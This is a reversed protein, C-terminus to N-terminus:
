ASGQCRPVANAGPGKGMTDGLNSMTYTPESVKGYIACAKRVPLVDKRYRLWYLVVHADGVWGGGSSSQLARRIREVAQFSLATEM